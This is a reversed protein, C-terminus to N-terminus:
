HTANTLAHARRSPANATSAVHAFFWDVMAIQQRVIAECVSKTEFFGSAEAIAILSTYSAIERHKFAILSALEKAVDGQTQVISDTEILGPLEDPLTQLPAHSGDIRRICIALSNQNALADMLDADIRENIERYPITAAAYTRLLGEACRETAYTDRLARLLDDKLDSM